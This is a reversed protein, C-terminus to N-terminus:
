SPMQDQRCCTRLSIIIHLNGTYSSSRQSPDEEVLGESEVEATDTRGTMGYARIPRICTFLSEEYKKVDLPYRDYYKRVSRDKADVKWYHFVHGAGSAKPGSEDLVELYIMIQRQM